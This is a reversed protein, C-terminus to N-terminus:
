PSVGSPEARDRCITVARELLGPLVRRRYAATGRVDDIPQGQAELLRGAERLTDVDLDGGVLAAECAGARFPVPAVSCVAVRADSVKGDEGFSIRASLGVIAVEMAGRRGVKLYVEGTRDDPRELEFGVVLEDPELATQKRGTVFADLPLTRAGRKSKLHVSANACLLPPLLDAAPSANVVNGGITGVNQTQRGGVTKAAEALAVHDSVVHASTALEHHTALAGLQTHGNGASVGRMDPIGRVHLLLSPAVQGRLYQVMVDTGGALVTAESGHEALVELAHDLDSSGVFEQTGPSAAPSSSTM